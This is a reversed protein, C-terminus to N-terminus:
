LLRRPLKSLSVYFDMKWENLFDENRRKLGMMLRLILRENGYWSFSCEIDEDDEEFFLPFATLDGDGCTDLDGEGVEDSDIGVGEGGAIEARTLDGEGGGAGIGSRVLDGEGGSSCSCILDGDGTGSDIETGIRASINAWGDVILLSYSSSKESTLWEGVFIRISSISISDILSSISSLGEILSVLWLEADFDLASSCDSIRTRTFFDAFLV